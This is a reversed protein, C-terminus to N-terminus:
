SWPLLDGGFITVTNESSRSSQFLGPPVINYSARASCM